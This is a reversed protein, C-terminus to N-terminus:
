RLMVLMMVAMVGAGLLATPAFWSTGGGDAQGATMDMRAAFRVVQELEAGSTPTGNGVREVRIVVRYAGEATIVPRFVYVGKDRVSPLVRTARDRAGDLGIFMAVTADGIATSDRERRLTVRYAVDDGLSYPPFEASIRLGEVATEKIVTQGSMPVPQAHGHGAGGGGHGMGGSGLMMCGSLLLPTIGVMTGVVFRSYMM